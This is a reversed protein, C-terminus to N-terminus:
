RMQEKIKQIEDGFEKDIIIEKTKIYEVADGNSNYIEYTLLIGTQKDIWFRFEKGQFRRANDQELTGSILLSKRGLYELNQEKIEWNDYNMLFNTAIEQPFLSGKSIGVIPHDNRYRFLPKGDLSSYRYEIQKDFEIAETYEEYKTERVTQNNESDITRSSGNIAIKIMKGYKEYGVSNKADNKVLYEVNPEYQDKSKFELSGKATRFYDMSNLMLYHVDKQSLIENTFDTPQPKQEPTSPKPVITKATNDLEKLIIKETVITGMSLILILYVCISLAKKFRFNSRTPPNDNNKIRNLIFYKQSAKFTTGKFYTSDLAIKILNSRKDM